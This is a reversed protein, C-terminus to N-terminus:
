HHRGWYPPLVYINAARITDAFMAEIIGGGIPRFFGFTYEVQVKSSMIAEIIGGGIPRFFMQTMSHLKVVEFRKM